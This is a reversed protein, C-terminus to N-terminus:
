MKADQKEGFILDYMSRNFNTHFIINQMIEKKNLWRWQDVYFYELFLM